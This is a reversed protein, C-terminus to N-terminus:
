WWAEFQAGTTFGNEGTKYVQEGITGKAEKNWTAYTAFLRL